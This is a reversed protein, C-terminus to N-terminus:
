RLLTVNGQFHQSKGDKFTADIIYVYVGVPQNINNFKGDWGRGSTNTTEFILEGWRDYIDMKFSTLGRSLLNRPLFYDDSGDGNPTFANPIDLYCDKTVNVSDVNTCGNITVKAYYLGEQRVVISPTTEGTNWLWTASSNGGNVGDTLTISGSNPCLSTDPGLNVIPLGYVQITKTVVTDPCQRYKATLKVTYSGARDFAHRPTKQNKLISGDGFDWIAGINGIASYDGNFSVTKGVCIYQDSPSFDATAFTDITTYGIATDHCGISDTAIFLVTYVGTLSYYHSATATNATAGDGFDWQYTLPAKGTATGTYTIPKFECTTDPKITSSVTMPHSLTITKSFNYLCNYINITSMKVTYTGQKAYVHGPNTVSDQLGDGFDWNHAVVTGSPTSRDTFAISDSNCGYFVQYSFSDTTGPNVVVTMMTRDSECGKITQTVWWHYTGPTTTSPTPATSTGIGGTDNTYWLLNTGTTTLKSPTANQCYSITHSPPSPPTKDPILIMHMTDTFCAPSTGICTLYVPTTGLTVNVIPGSTTSITTSTPFVSWTWQYAGGNVINITSVTNRCVHATDGGKLSASDGSHAWKPRTAAFASDLEKINLVYAYAIATSDGAAISGISFVLGVGCDSVNSDYMVSSGATGNYISAVSATPVLGGPNIFAKARCDETGLGCFAKSYHIGWTSVAAKNEANPIKYSVVNKTTYDGSITVDNDPDLTRMYYINNITSTGVNKLTVYAVFFVTSTDITTTQTIVMDAATSLKYEGSWFGTVERGTNTYWVNQGSMSSAGAGTYGTAGCTELSAIYAQFETGNMSFAWGEQPYGPTYYDGYYAPSGTLWGDKDPDAVFGVSRVRTGCTFSTDCPDYFNQGGSGYVPRAVYNLPADISSGFAAIQCIGVEVYNGKLFINCSDLQANASMTSLALVTFVLLTKFPSLNKM